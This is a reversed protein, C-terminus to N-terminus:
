HDLRLSKLGLVLLLKQWITISYDNTLLLFYFSESLIVIGDDGVSFLDFLQLGVMM